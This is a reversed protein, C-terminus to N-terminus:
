GGDDMMGDSARVIGRRNVGGESPADNGAARLWFSESDWRPSSEFVSPALPICYIRDGNDWPIYERTTIFADSWATQIASIALQRRCQGVKDTQM